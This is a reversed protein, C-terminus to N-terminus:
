FESPVLVFLRALFTRTRIVQYAKVRYDKSHSDAVERTRNAKVLAFYRRPTNIAGKTERTM